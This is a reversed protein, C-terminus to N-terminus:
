NRFSSHTAASVAIGCFLLSALLGRMGLALTASFVLALSLFIILVYTRSSAAGLIGFIDDLDDMIRILQYMQVTGGAQSCLHYSYRASVATILIVCAAIKKTELRRRIEANKTHREQGFGDGRGGGCSRDM